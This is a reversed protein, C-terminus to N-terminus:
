PVEGLMIRFESELLKKLSPIDNQFKKYANDFADQQDKSDGEDGNSVHCVM